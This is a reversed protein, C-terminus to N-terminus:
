LVHRGALLAETRGDPLVVAAKVNAPIVFTYVPKGDEYKWSSEIRGAPSDYSAVAEALLPNPQPAICVDANGGTMSVHIGCIGSILWGAISGYSYHNLSDHVTGDERVGDWTEWITTAGKKVEYLWSPCTDQLLLRYATEVYGNDALVPCLHPTSLFGTNLHDNQNKVAENLGAAVAAQDEPNVLGFALPRVYDAERESTIMGNDTTIRRLAIRAKEATDAYRAADEDKGLVAAIESLLRGSYAFYATAVPYNSQMMAMQSNTGPELWEGYDIGATVTYERYPDNEDMTVRPDDQKARGTLYEYWGQMLGYNEELIRRDGTRKWIAYPILIVADGWGTSGALMQSFYSPNNNRPAINMVKGDPQQQLRVEGLWKRYVTASDMLTLGTEVFIGADGTWGARERTPCDTPIDCFNGKMSWVANAFLQNVDPNSCTFSATEEMDSYVAIATFQANAAALDLDTEVLAYRFGWISFTTKYHNEGERCIYTVKQDVGGEKHRNRDQFNEQTFNGNEDLTEGHWLTIVDGEHAQLTFEVYGALNQGFDAVTKGDPTRILTGAFREKERIPVENTCVLPKKADEMVCVSYWTKRASEGQECPFAIRADFTEGMMLDNTRIPGDQCAEWTGDTACLVEGAAAVQAFLAIDEGYLNREGDTGSCGRYWGDGVQVLLENEGEKLLGSIDYTQYPMHIDYNGTGPALVFDGVRSGNLWAEYLGHATIYLRASEAQGATVAFTKRLWSAPRHPGYDPKDTSPMLSAAGNPLDKPLSAKVDEPLNAAMAALANATEATEEEPGETVNEAEEAFVSAGDATHEPDIWAAKWDAADLLGMEFWAPESWPGVAGNEDTLRVCWTVRQGSHLPASLVAAMESTEATLHAIEAGDSKAVLEYATQALGDECRWTLRPNQLDIGLPNFLHETRLNVAIM